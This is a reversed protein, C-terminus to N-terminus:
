SLNDNIVSLEYPSRTLFLIISITLSFVGEFIHKQYDFILCEQCCEPCESCCENEYLVKCSKDALAYGIYSNHYLWKLDACTKEGNLRKEMKVPTKAEGYVRVLSVCTMNPDGYNERFRFQVKGIKRVNLDSSINCMQETGHPEYPSYHCNSALPEWENCRSDLCAVVDYIKPTEKPITGNWKSHQYSVSIPKIYKALNISLVPNKDKSCWAKDAPPQPRDLLVLDSQDFHINTYLSSSSSLHTKVYAGLLYDAANFRFREKPIPFNLISNDTKSTSQNTKSISPEIKETSDRTPLKTKQVEDSQELPQTKEFKRIVQVPKQFALTELKREMSSVLGYGIYNNHYYWKLDACTKESNLHKEMKVSKKTEGYVRVLNVCTWEPDGHNERFRFHIIGITPVDLDSTVNCMQETGNSQHQNYQCNLALPEWLKCHPDFCALVDYTKPAHKPIEGNWESHQYSVSIPKIYQALNITLKPNQDNSCWAKDAPPQPRDLLVLDTDWRNNTHLTSRSSLHTAVSAGLLYNAANFLFTEKYITAKLTNNDTQSTSQKMKLVPPEIKSTPDQTSLKTKQAEDSQELPQIDDFQRIDEDPKQSALVELKREMSSVMELIRDNQNSLTQLRYFIMFLSIFFFIELIMYQRIRINFWHSWIKTNTHPESNTKHTTPIM